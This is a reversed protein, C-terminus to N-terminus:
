VEPSRWESAPDGVKRYVLEAAHAPADGAYDLQNWMHMPDEKARSANTDEAAVDTESGITGQERWQFGDHDYTISVGPRLVITAGAWEDAGLSGTIVGPNETGSAGGTLITACLALLQGTTTNNNGFSQITSYGSSYSTITQATASAQDKIGISLVMCDDTVITGSVPPDPQGTSTSQVTTPTIDLPTTGDIGRIVVCIAAWAATFDGGEGVRTGSEGGAALEAFVYVGPVSPPAQGVQLEDLWTADAWAPQTWDNPNAGGDGESEASAAVVVIWDGALVGGSIDSPVTATFNLSDGTAVEITQTPVTIAM